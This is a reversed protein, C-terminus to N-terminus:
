FCFDGTSECWPKKKTSLLNSTDFRSRIFSMTLINVSYSSIDDWLFLYKTDIILLKGTGRSGLGKVLVDNSKNLRDQHQLFKMDVKLAYEIPLNIM